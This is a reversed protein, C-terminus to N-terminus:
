HLAAATLAALLALGATLWTVQDGVLGSHLHRLWATDAALARRLGAARRDLAIGAVCLAALAQGADALVGGAGAV